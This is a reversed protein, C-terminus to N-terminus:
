NPASVEARKRNSENIRKAEIALGGGSIQLLGESDDQDNLICKLDLGGYSIMSFSASSDPTLEYPGGGNLQLYLVRDRGTITIRQKEMVDPSVIEYEGCYKGTVSFDFDRYMRSKRINDLNHRAKWEFVEAAVTFPFLDSLKTVYPAKELESKIDLVIANEFNHFSYIRILGNTLDAIYSYLTVDEGESHVDSLIRRCYDMDADAKDKLLRCATQYRHCEFGNGYPYESFRFNAAVQYNGQMYHITGAEVIIANGNRDGFMWQYRTMQSRNYQKLMAVVDNVSACEAMLLDQLDGPYITGNVPYTEKYPLGFADYWLGMENVGGQSSLDSYGFYIRGYTGKEGGPVTWIMTEPNCGDENNGVIAASPTKVFFGTCSSAPKVATFIAAAFVLKIFFTLKM